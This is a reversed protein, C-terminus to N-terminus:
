KKCKPHPPARLHQGWLADPSTACDVCSYTHLRAANVAHRHKPPAVHTGPSSADARFVGYIDPLPVASGPLALLTCLCLGCAQRVAAQTARPCRWGQLADPATLLHPVTPPVLEKCLAVLDLRTCCPRTQLCPAQLAALRNLVHLTCSPTLRSCLCAADLQPKTKPHSRGQVAEPRTLCTFCPASPTLDGAACCALLKGQSRWHRKLPTSSAKRATLLHFPPFPLLTKASCASLGASPQPYSSDAAPLRCSCSHAACCSKAWLCWHGQLPRCSSDGCDAAPCRHM